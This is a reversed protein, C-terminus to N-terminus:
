DESDFEKYIKHSDSRDYNIIKFFYFVYKNVGTKDIIQFYKDFFKNDVIEYMKFFNKIKPEIDYLDYYNIYHIGECGKEDDLVIVEEDLGYDKHKDCWSKHEIIRICKRCLYDLCIGAYLREQIMTLFEDCEYCAKYKKSKKYLNIIDEDSYTM